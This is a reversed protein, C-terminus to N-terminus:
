LVAGSYMEPPEVKEGKLKFVAKTGYIIKLTVNSICLVDEVYYLVYEYYTFGNGKVAPKMWVDPDARSPRYDTDYLVQALKARFAAEPSKLGYLDMKVVM